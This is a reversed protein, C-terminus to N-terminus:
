SGPLQSISRALNERATKEYKGYFFDTSYIRPRSLFSSLIASRGKVFADEPVWSYESRIQREYEGFM